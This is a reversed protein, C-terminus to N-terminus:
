LHREIIADIKESQREVEAAPSLADAEALLKAAQERLQWARMAHASLQDRLRTIAIDISNGRAIEFGVRAGEAYGVATAWDEDSSDLKIMLQDLGTKNISALKARLWKVCDDETMERAMPNRESEPYAIDALTSSLDSARPLTTGIDLALPDAPMIPNNNM